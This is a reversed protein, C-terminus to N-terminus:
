RVYGQLLNIALLVKILVPTERERMLISWLVVVAIANEVALEDVINIRVRAVYTAAVPVQESSVGRLSVGEQRGYSM